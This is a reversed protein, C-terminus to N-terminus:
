NFGHLLETKRFSLQESLYSKYNGVWGYKIARLYRITEIRNLNFHMKM